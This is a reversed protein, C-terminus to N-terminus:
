GWRGCPKRKHKCFGPRLTDSWLQPADGLYPHSFRFAAAVHGSFASSPVVNKSGSVAKGTFIFMSQAAFFSNFPKSICRIDLNSKITLSEATQTLCILRTTRRLGAQSM